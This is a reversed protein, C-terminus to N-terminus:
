VEFKKASELSRNLTHSFYILLIAKMKFLLFNNGVMELFKFSVQNKKKKKKKKKLFWSIWLSFNKKKEKGKKKKERRGLFMKWTVKEIVAKRRM